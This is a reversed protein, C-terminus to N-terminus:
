RRGRREALLRAGARAADQGSMYTLENLRAAQNGASIESKNLAVGPRQVPPLNAAATQRGNRMTEKIREDNLRARAVDYLARQQNSTVFVAGRRIADSSGPAIEEILSAAMKQLSARYDADQQWLPDAQSVFKEFESDAKAREAMNVRVQEDARAHQLLAENTQRLQQYHQVQGLRADYVNKAQLIESAAAPDQKAFAEFSGAQAVKQGYKATLLADIQQAEFALRTEQASMQRMSALAEAEQRVRAREQEILDPPPPEQSQPEPQQPQQQEPPAAEALAEPPLQQALIQSMEAIRQERLTRLRDAAERPNDGHSLPPAKEDGLPYEHIRGGREIEIAQAIPDSVGPFDRAINSAREIRKTVTFDAAAAKDSRPRAQDTYRVLDADKTRRERLRLAAQEISLPEDQEGEGFIVAREPTGKPIQNLLEDSNVAPITQAPHESGPPTVPTYDVEDSV